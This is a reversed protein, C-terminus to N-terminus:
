KSLIPTPNPTRTLRPRPVQEVPAILNRRMINGALRPVAAADTPPPASRPARPRNPRRRHDEASINM